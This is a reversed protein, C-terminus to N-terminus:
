NLQQNLSERFQKYMGECSEKNSNNSGNLFGLWGSYFHEMNRKLEEPKLSAQELQKKLNEIEIKLGEIEKQLEKINEKQSIIENEVERIRKKLGKIEIEAKVNVNKKEHETLAAEYMFGWLLYTGFGFAL